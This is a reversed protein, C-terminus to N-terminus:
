SSMLLRLTDDYVSPERVRRCTLKLPVRKPLWTGYWGCLIPMVLPINLRWSLWVRQKLFPGRFMRYTSCEGKVFVSWIPVDKNLRLFGHRPFHRYDDGTEALVIEPVGGPVVLLSCGAKLAMRMEKKNAPICGIVRLLWGIVPVYFLVPAVCLVTKSKPVLHIGAVAGCCLLGHPHVGIVAPGQFHLQNCPFWEHWPIKSIWIRIPHEVLISEHYHIQLILSVTLSIFFLVIAAPFAFISAICLIPLAWIWFFTLICMLVM